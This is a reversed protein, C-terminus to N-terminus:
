LTHYGTSKIQSPMETMDQPYHIISGIVGGPHRLGHNKSLLLSIVILGGFALIALVPILLQPLPIGSVPQEQSLSLEKMLEMCGEQLRIREMRTRLVEQDWLLKLSLAQPIESRWTDTYDLTLCLKEDCFVRDAWHLQSGEQLCERSRLVTHNRLVSTHNAGILAPLLTSTSMTKIIKDVERSTGAPPVGNLLVQMSVRQYGVVGWQQVQLIVTDVPVPVGRSLDWLMLLLISLLHM